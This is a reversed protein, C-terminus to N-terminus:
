SIKKGDKVTIYIGDQFVRTDYGPRRTVLEIAAAQNGALEKDVSEVTIDVGAITVKVGPKIRLQRPVGEGIFNKVEFLDGKLTVSMPFHGSCIKLKYTHGDKAGRLMNRIHAANTELLRKEKKTANKSSLVITDGDVSVQVSKSAVIRRLEGKPGKLALATGQMAATVGSPVGITEKLEALHM